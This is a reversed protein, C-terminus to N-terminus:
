EHGNQARKNQPRDAGDAQRVCGFLRTMGFGRAVDDPHDTGDGKLDSFVYICHGRSAADPATTDADPAPPGLAWTALRSARLRRLLGGAATGGSRTLDDRMAREDTM